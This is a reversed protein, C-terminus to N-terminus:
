SITTENELIADLKRIPIGSFYLVPLQNMLEQRTVHVNNKDNLMIELWDYVTSSVYMAARVSNYDKIRNKGIILKQIMAPSTDSASGYTILDSIDINAVRSVYRFDKVALGPSWVFNTCWAYYPNTNTDLIRQKGMDNIQLAAQSGEPYFYYVSKEGWGIIWASTLDSGSGGASVIQYGATNKTTSITKFRIDFGNFKEPDEATNGYISADSFTENFQEVFATDESWRVKKPDKEYDLVMVDVESNGEMRCITDTVQGTTSKSAAVGNGVTRYGITPLGSRRTTINSTKNNAEKWVADIHLPCAKALVEIVDAHSGDPDMRTKLDFLTLNSM